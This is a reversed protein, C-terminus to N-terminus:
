EQDILVARGEHHLSRIDSRIRRCGAPGVLHLERIECEVVYRQKGCSILDDFLAFFLDLHLKLRLELNIEAEAVRCVLHLNELEFRLVRVGISLSLQDIENGNSVVQAGASLVILNWELQHEDAQSGVIHVGICAVRLWPEAELPSLGANLIRLLCM